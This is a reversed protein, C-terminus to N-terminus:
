TGDPDGDCTQIDAAAVVDRVRPSETGGGGRDDSPERRDVAKDRLGTQFRQGFRLQDLPCRLELPM